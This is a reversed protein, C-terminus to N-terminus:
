LRANRTCQEMMTLSPSSGTNEALFRRVINFCEDLGDPVLQRMNPDELAKKTTMTIIFVSSPDATPVQMRSLCGRVKCIYDM